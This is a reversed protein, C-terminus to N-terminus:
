KAVGGASRKFKDILRKINEKDPIEVETLEFSHQFKTQEDPVNNINDSRLIHNYLIVTKYLYMNDARHNKILFSYDLPKKRYYFYSSDPEFEELKRNTIIETLFGNKDDSIVKISDKGRGRANYFVSPFHLFDKILSDLPYVKGISDSNSKFCVGYKEGKKGIYYRYLTEATAPHKEDPIEQGLANLKVYTKTSLYSERLIEYDKSYILDPSRTFTM